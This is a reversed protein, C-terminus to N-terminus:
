KNKLYKIEEQLEQIAKIMVPILRGYSAQLKEPNNSNVLQLYEDDSEQLEQAIFGLDKLGKRNGDRQDWEFTVPNLKEIVDLGYSSKQINTKDRSDSLASITQVQCHLGTINSDGLTVTNDGNDSAGYGIVTARSLISSSTSIDTGVLTNRAGSTIAIGTNGANRGICINYLGTVNRGAQYGVHTGYNGVEVIRLAQELPQQLLM